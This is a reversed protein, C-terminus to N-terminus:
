NKVIAGYTNWKNNKKCSNLLKRIKSNVAVARLSCFSSSDDKKEKRNYIFITDSNNFHFM